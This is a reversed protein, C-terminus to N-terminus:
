YFWPQPDLTDRADVIPAYGVSSSSSAPLCQFCYNAGDNNDWYQEGKCHFRVAFELRQGVPLTHCSLVFSFKDTFGDCSNAVYSARLDSFNAWCNLTYRIHVSKHFDLNVVRVTGHVSLAVPDQVLVNELCVKRRKVLDLFNLSGGPQEFLPVLSRDPKRPSVTVYGRRGGLELTPSTFNVPSTDKRFIDDYILDSYASNPVRPIEDLFTRVDALDLGLVDAFRVIKKRGPTGPPTKGTKLSSSRRIKPVRSEVEEEEEEIADTEQRPIIRHDGKVTPSTALKKLLLCMKDDTSEEVPELNVVAAAEEPKSCEEDLPLEDSKDNQDLGKSGDHEVNISEDKLTEVRVVIESDSHSKVIQPVTPEEELSVTSEEFTSWLSEHSSSDETNQLNRLCSTKDDVLGGNSLNSSTIESDTAPDFYGEPKEAVDSSLDFFIDSSDSPPSTGTLPSAFAYGTDSDISTLPEKSCNPSSRHVSSRSLNEHNVLLDAMEAATVEEAPSGLGDEYDLEFDCVDDESSRRPQQRLVQNSSNNKASSDSSHLWTTEKPSSASDYPPDETGLSTLRRHLRRAFAEARGRCITPFLSGVLGCSSRGGPSPNTNIPSDTSGM